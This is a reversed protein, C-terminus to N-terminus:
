PALRVRHEKLILLTRAGPAAPASLVSGRSGHLTLEYRGPGLLRHHVRFDWHILSRGRPQQGLNVLGAFVLRGAGVARMVRMALVGPKLLEAIVTAERSETKYVHLGFFRPGRSLFTYRAARSPRSLDGLCDAVMVNVPWTGHTPATVTATGASVTANTAAVGGFYVQGSQGRPCGYDFGSGTITVTTGSSGSGPSVSSVVPLPYDFTDASTIPSQDGLCDVVVVNASGAHHTPAVARASGDSVTANAAAVGGFYVQGSQGRPCGYDFGSGTITVTTGITGAGPSLSSVIPSPYDFTDASTIPSLDGLCDAVEVNATGARHAPAAATAIGASVTANTAAVGGFYVTGTQRGSCGYDFGSGTISVTTGITGSGPSVSSVMPSPYDFTDASTIPSQDGLCDVVVVNASGAHHTPAVATASGDSVTAGAAAVGGFYVAGTQGSPCGENFGSGTITVTTGITGSGPSVSSVMPSPYDFTDASTIPSLDGLCDAVEVNAPGAHHTPAPVTATGASVTASTAAVGGFFVTGTQGGSCGDDFGSGMITVTTGITGSGPSVSSVVPQAAAAAPAALLISPAPLLAAALIAFSGVRM